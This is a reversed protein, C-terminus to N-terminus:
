VLIPPARAAYHHAHTFPRQTEGAIFILQHGDLSGFAIRDTGAVSDLAAYAVCKDCFSLHHAKKDQQSERQQGDALHSIAHVAAGQQGLGFLFILSLILLLRRLM